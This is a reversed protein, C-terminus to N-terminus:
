PHLRIYKEIIVRDIDEKEVKEIGKQTLTCALLLPLRM